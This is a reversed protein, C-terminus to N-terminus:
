TRVLAVRFGIHDSSREPEYRFRVASRLWRGDDNWAGGRRVRSYTGDRNPAGRLDRLDPDVGGPLAAHYYDRCWEFVNGHMDHLGWPNAPYSGVAVARGPAPGGSGGGLPAGGFNADSRGLSDGFATATTTGARAAYEWQAETPVRFEWSGVLQGRARTGTTLLACFAEADLFSVWYVPVDEGLGYEASLPRATPRDMVRQWQGQTIEFQGMWFGRTFTVEVQAEDSRRGPETPPSGMLFRGRPCWCFSLGGFRREEGAREGNLRDFRLPPPAVAQFLPAGALQIFRRRGTM